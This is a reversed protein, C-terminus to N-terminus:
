DNLRRLELVRYRIGINFSLKDGQSIVTARQEPRGQAKYRVDTSTLDAFGGMYNVSADLNFRNTLKYTLNTGGELM